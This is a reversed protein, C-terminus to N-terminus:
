GAKFIVMKEKYDSLLSETDSRTLASIGNMLTGVETTKLKKNSSLQRVTNDQNRRYLM